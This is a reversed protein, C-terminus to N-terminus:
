YVKTGTRKRATTRNSRTRPPKPAPKSREEGEGEEDDDKEDDELVVTTETENEEDLVEMWQGPDEADRLFFVEGARIRTGHYFGPKRAKVKIGM